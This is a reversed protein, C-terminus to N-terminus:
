PEEGCSGSPIVTGNRCTMYETAYGSVSISSTGGPGQSVHTVTLTSTATTTQAHSGLVFGLDSQIAPPLALIGSALALGGILWKLKATKSGKM